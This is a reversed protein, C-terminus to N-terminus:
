DRRRKLADAISATTSATTRSSDLRLWGSSEPPAEEDFHQLQTKLVDTTADSPDNRRDRIRQALNEPPAELWIGTFPAEARAAVAAIATREAARLYVGDVITSWGGRLTRYADHQQRDYVQVSVDRAYAEQPLRELPGTGFLAKRIRDTSLIRAGPPPGLMPAFARAATSKGSGSLGGVAVLRPAFPALIAHALDIYARAEQAQTAADSGTSGKVSPADARSAAIHARVAARLAMLVPMVALADCDGTEDLYRNFVYNAADSQGRHWLDMLLFALDYLVDISALDEDFELCDFLTPEGNFLCINRLHLDGHCRRIRGAKGRAAFVAAHSAIAARCGQLLSKVQPDGALATNAFGAENARQARMISELGDANAITEASTHFQAVAHALRDLLDQKLPGQTALNDLLQDQDFRAMEVVADVLEGSAASTDGSPALALSGNPHRVIALVSKYIQPATRRNLMLERQCYHLRVAPDSFDLYPLHVAKKLKLVRDAYLFVHSIHTEIREPKAEGTGSLSELFRCVEEQAKDEPAVSTAHRTM